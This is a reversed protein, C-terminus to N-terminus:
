TTSDAISPSNMPSEEALESGRIVVFGTRLALVQPEGDMLRDAPKFLITPAIGFTSPTSAASPLAVVAVLPPLLLLAPGLLKMVRNRLEM